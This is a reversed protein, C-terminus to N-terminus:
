RKVMVPQTWARRGHSDTVRARVYGETGTIDYRAHLKTSTALVRGGSGIFDIRYRIDNSPTIELEVHHASSDYRRLTVGTSAYFDGRRLSALIAETTLTDARVMVWGRGPRPVDPNDAEEPKFSHSDDDAVAFLLKGRTLLSDWLSETSPMANGLSDAGGLNYVIPHGNWLEFLTSDPLAAMVDLPVSWRFNPHNVQPVGGAARIAALNREYVPAMPPQAIYREGEPRIMRTVGLANVHAQRVGDPHAPDATRQSVEQGSFVQFREARGYIANLASADTIYEHDTIFTFHYGHTRYWRVVDVPPSDGDSNTTHAHTNGKYWRAAPQQASAAIPVLAATAAACIIALLQARSSQCHSSTM